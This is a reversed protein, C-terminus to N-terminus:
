FQVPKHAGIAKVEVLVPTHHHGSIAHMLKGSVMVDKRGALKKLHAHDKPPMTLPLILQLDTISSEAEDDASATTCIPRALHLILYTEPQDGRRISEYNPPGPFTKKSITGILQVGAVDYSLCGQASAYATPIFLCLMLMFLRIHTKLRV